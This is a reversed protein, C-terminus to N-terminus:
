EFRHFQKRSFRELQVWSRHLRLAPCATYPETWVLAHYLGRDLLLLIVMVVVLFAFGISFLLLAALTERVYYLQMAGLVTQNHPYIVGAALVALGGALMGVKALRQRM